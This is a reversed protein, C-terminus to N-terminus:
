LMDEEHRHYFVTQMPKLSSTQILHGFVFVSLKWKALPRIVTPHTVNTPQISVGPSSFEQPVFITPINSCTNAIERRSVLTDLLYNCIAILIYRRNQVPIVKLPIDLSPPGPICKDMPNQSIQVFEVRPDAIPDPKSPGMICKLTGVGGVRKHSLSVGGFLSSHKRLFSWTLLFQSPWHSVKLSKPITYKTPFIFNSSRYKMTRFPQTLSFCWLRGTGDM